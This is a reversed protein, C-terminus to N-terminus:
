VRKCERSCAAHSRAGKQSVVKCGRAKTALGLSPNRCFYCHLVFSTTLYHPLLLLVVLYHALSVLCHVICLAVRPLLVVFCHFPLSSAVRYPMMIFYCLLTTRCFVLCHPLMLCLLVILYCCYLVFLFFVFPFFFSFRTKPWPRKKM